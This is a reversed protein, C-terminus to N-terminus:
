GGTAMRNFACRIIKNTGSCQM